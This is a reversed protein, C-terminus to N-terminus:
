ERCPKEFIKNFDNMTIFAKKTQLFGVAVGDKDYAVEFDKFIRKIDDKCEM